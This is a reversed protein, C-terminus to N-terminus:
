IVAVCSRRRCICPPTRTRNQLLIGSGTIVQVLLYKSMIALGICTGAQQGPYAQFGPLCPYHQWMLMGHSFWFIIAQLQQPCAYCVETWDHAQIVIWLTPYAAHETGICSIGCHLDGALRVFFVAQRRDSILLLDCQQLVEEDLTLQVDSIPVMAVFRRQVVAFFHTFHM